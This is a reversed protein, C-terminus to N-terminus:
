LYQYQDLAASYGLACGVIVALGLATLVVLKRPVDQIHAKFYCFNFLTVPAQIVLAGAYRSLTLGHEYPRWDAGENIGLNFDSLTLYDYCYWTLIATLPLAFLTSLRGKEGVRRTMKWTLLTELSQPLALVLTTLVCIILILVPVFFVMMEAADSTSRNPNGHIFDVFFLEVILFSAAATAIALLISGFSKLYIISIAKAEM